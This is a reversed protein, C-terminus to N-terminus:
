GNRGAPGSVNRVGAPSRIRSTLSGMGHGTSAVLSSDECTADGGGGGRGGAGGKGGGGGDPSRFSVRPWSRWRSRIARFARASQTPADSFGGTLAFTTM